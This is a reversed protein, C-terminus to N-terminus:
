AVVHGPHDPRRAREAAPRTGGALPGAPRGPHGGGVGAAVGQHQAQDNGDRRSRPAVDLLAKQAHLRNEAQDWVASAPGDIVDASIEEGRHAPLCHLVICDPRALMSNTRIWDSRAWRPRNARCPHRGAGDVGVRRHRARGRGRLGRRSRRVLPRQRRTLSAIEAAAAMVAPDPRYAEPSAIRVHLGATAGGLLYSHAMNSSGDGLFTLTLGALVGRRNRITQLDALM